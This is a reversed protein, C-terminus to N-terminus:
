QVGPAQLAAQHGGSGPAARRRNQVNGRDAHMVQPIGHIGFTGKMMEVAPVGSETANVHAGVIFRSHIDVMMYCDFYKGKVPGSLKTWSQYWM